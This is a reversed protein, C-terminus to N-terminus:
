LVYWQGPIRQEENGHTFADEHFGAKFLYFEIELIEYEEAVTSRADISDKSSSSSTPSDSM